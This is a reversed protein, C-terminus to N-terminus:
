RVVECVLDVHRRQVRDPLVAQVVYQQEGDRV